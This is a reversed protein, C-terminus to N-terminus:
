SSILQIISKIYSHLEKRYSLCYVSNDIKVVLFAINPIDEYNVYFSKEGFEDTENISVGLVTDSKEKILLFIENALSSKDTHFEYFEAIKDENNQLVRQDVVDTTKYDSFDIFNFLLHNFPVRQLTVNQFGANKVVEFKITAEESFLENDLVTLPKNEDVDFDIVNHQDTDEVGLVNVQESGNKAQPYDIYNNVLLEAAVVVVIVIIFVTFLNTQSM